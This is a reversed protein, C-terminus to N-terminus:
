LFELSSVVKDFESMLPSTSPKVKLHIIRQDKTLIFEMASALDAEKWVTVEADFGPIQALGKNQIVGGFKLSSSKVWEDKSLGVPLFGAFFSIKFSQDTSSLSIFSGERKITWDQPYKFKFGQNTVTYSKWDTVAQKLQSQIIRGLGNRGEIKYDETTANDFIFQFQQKAEDLKGLSYLTNALNLRISLEKPLYSVAEDFYKLSGALDGRLATFVAIRNLIEPSFPAFEYAKQLYDLSKQKVQQQKGTDVDKAFPDKQDSISWFYDSLDVFSTAYETLITNYAGNYNREIYFPKKDLFDPDRFKYQFNKEDPQLIDKAGLIRYALGSEVAKLREKDLVLKGSDTGALVSERFVMPTVYVPYGKNILKEIYWNMVERYEEFRDKKIMTELEIPMLDPNQVRLNDRYWPLIYWMNSVIPFVDSRRKVSEHEYLSLSNFFDGTGILVSNEPLNQYLNDAYDLSVFTGSRDLKPFWYILPILAVVLAGILFTSKLKPTIGLLVKLALGMGAGIFITFIIYSAIFWAEQNGSLYIIGFALNTLPIIALSLFLKKNKQYIYIAGLVLVPLLLPTFQVFMLYIYRGFSESFVASSGTFGNISNTRPDHIDLGEGRLHGVFRAVTQPDGWNLFPHASARIPLYSYIAFTLIVTLFAALVLKKLGIFKWFFVTSLVLAPVVQIITPNAGTAIGLVVAVLLIRNFLGRKAAKATIVLTIIVMMLFNTFIYSESNLTQSWFEYSFALTLSAAAAILNIVGPSLTSTKLKKFLSFAKSDTKASDIFQFDSIFLKRILFYVLTLTGLSSVISFLQIRFLDNGFPLWTFLHGILMYLPFGPPNPIGLSAAGAVMTGADIYLISTSLTKFYVTLTVVWLTFLPLHPLLFRLRKM